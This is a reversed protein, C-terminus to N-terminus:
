FATPQLTGTARRKSTEAKLTIEQLGALGAYRAAAADDFLTEACLIAKASNRILREADTMWANTDGEESLSSLRKVGIARVTYADTPIPYLQLEGNLLAYCYPEGQAATADALLELEDPEEKRLIRNQGAVTLFLSDIEVVTAIWSADASTYFRQDAVTSFTLARSENFWFRTSEWTKIADQIANDIFSGALLDPRELENAIRTKMTGFTSM